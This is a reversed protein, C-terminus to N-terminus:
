GGQCAPFSHLRLRPATCTRCGSSIDPSCSLLHCTWSAELAEAITASRDPPCQLLCTRVIKFVLKLMIELGHLHFNKEGTIQLAHPLLSGALPMCDMPEVVQLLRLVVFNGQAHMAGAPMADTIGGALRAARLM